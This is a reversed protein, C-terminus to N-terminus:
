HRKKQFGYCVCISPTIALLNKQAKVVGLVFYNEPTGVRTFL